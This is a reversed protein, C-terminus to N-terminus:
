ILQSSSILRSLLNTIVEVKGFPEAGWLFFTGCEQDLSSTSLLEVLLLLEEELEEVVELLLQRSPVVALLPYNVGAVGEQRRFPRLM